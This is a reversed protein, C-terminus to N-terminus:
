PKRGEDAALRDALTALLAGLRAALPAESAAGADGVLEVRLRREGPSVHALTVALRPTPLLDAVRSGWEIVAVGDAVLLEEGGGELFARERGEMWADYHFLPLRGEYEKMLTFTPSDIRDEVGLGRALGQTFLTKGAGLEGDLTVVLGAGPAPGSSDDALLEGLRRGARATEEPSSTVREISPPESM